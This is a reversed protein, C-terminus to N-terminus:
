IETLPVLDATTWPLLVPDDTADASVVFAVIRGDEFASISRTRDGEKRSLDWYREGGEERDDFETARVEVGEPTLYWDGRDLLVPETNTGATVHPLLERRKPNGRGM